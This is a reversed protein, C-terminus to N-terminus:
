GNAAPLNEARGGRRLWDGSAIRRRGDVAGTYLYMWCVTRAGDALTAEVERRAFASGEYEDLRAIVEDAAEDTLEFVDGRVVDADDGSAVASPHWGFDYLRGRMTGSGLLRARRQLFAAMPNDQGARLTGYVFLRVGPGHPGPTADDAPSPAPSSM